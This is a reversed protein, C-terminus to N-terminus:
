GTIALAALRLGALRYQHLAHSSVEIAVGPCDSTLSAMFAHLQEPAPTTQAAPQESRGDHLGLTGVRAAGAGLCQWTYWAVTTKGDTGTVGILPVASRDAGSAAASARAHSWRAHPVRLTCPGEVAPAGESLVLAAGAARAEALHASRRAEDAIAVFCDGAAVRRSDRQVGALEIDALAGTDGALLQHRLISATRGRPAPPTSM